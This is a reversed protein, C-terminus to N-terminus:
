PGSMRLTGHETVVQILVLGAEVSERPRPGAVMIRTQNKASEFTAHAEQRGRRTGVTLKQELTNLTGDKRTSRSAAARAAVM